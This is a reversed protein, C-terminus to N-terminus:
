GPAGCHTAYGYIRRIWSQEPIGLRRLLMRVKGSSCEPNKGHKGITARGGNPRSIYIESGKGQRIQCDFSQALMKELYEYRLGCVRRGARTSAGDLQEALDQCALALSAETAPQSDITGPVSQAAAHDIAAPVAQGPRQGLARRRIRDKDIREYFSYLKDHFRSVIYLNIPLSRDYAPGRTCLWPQEPSSLLGDQNVGVLYPHERTALQRHLAMRCDSGAINAIGSRTGWLWALTFGDSLEVSSKASNFNRVLFPRMEQISSAYLTLEQLLEGSPRSEFAELEGPKLATRARELLGDLWDHFFGLQLVMRICVRARRLTSPDCDDPNFLVEGDTQTLSSKFTGEYLLWIAYPMCGSLILYDTRHRGHLKQFLQNCEEGLRMFQLFKNGKDRPDYRELRSALYSDLWAMLRDQLLQLWGIWHLYAEVERKRKGVHEENLERLEDLILGFEAYQDTTATKRLFVPPTYNDSPQSEIREKFDVHGPLGLKRKAENRKAEVLLHRANFAVTM